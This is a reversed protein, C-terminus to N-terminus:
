DDAQFRLNMYRRSLRDLTAWMGKIRIRASKAMPIVSSSAQSEKTQQTPVLLIRLRSIMDDHWLAIRAHSKCRSIDWEPMENRHCCIRATEKQENALRGGKENKRSTASIPRSQM